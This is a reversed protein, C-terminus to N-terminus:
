INEPCDHLLQPFVGIDHSPDRILWSLEFCSGVEVDGRYKDQLKKETITSDSGEEVDLMYTHKFAANIESPTFSWEESRGESIPSVYKSYNYDGEGSSIKVNVNIPETYLNVVRIRYLPIKIQDSSLITCGCLGGMGSASIGRVLDRRLM